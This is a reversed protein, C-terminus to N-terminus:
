APIKAITKLIRERFWFNLLNIGRYMADQFINFRSKRVDYVEVPIEVIGLNKKKLFYTLKIVYFTGKDIADLKDIIHDKRYGKAGISFDSFELGLLIKVLFIFISSMMKRYLPRKQKAMKSGIVMSNDKLLEICRPIFYEFNISLDMDLSILNNFSAVEVMKKFAFGVSRSQPITLFKVKRPFQSQLKEGLKSTNDTSGNDCLLVEYPYGLGDLFKILKETNRVLIEEENYVPIMISFGNRM